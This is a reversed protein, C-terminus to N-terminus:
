VCTRVATEVAAQYLTFKGAREDGPDIEDIVSFSNIEDETLGPTAYLANAVCNAEDDTLKAEVILIDVLADRSAGAGLGCATAGLSLALFLAPFRATVRM